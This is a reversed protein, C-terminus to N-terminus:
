LEDHASEETIDADKDTEDDDGEADSDVPDDKSEDKQKGWTAEALKMAYDPDDCILVNDFLTRSKVQWLDIGVYKLKPFVYIEPDDKFEPNDIMPTKWKRQYNPNKIKLQHMTWRKVFFFREFGEVFQLGTLLSDNICGPAGQFPCAICIWKSVYKSFVEEIVITGNMQGEKAEEMVIEGNIQDEKAQVLLQPVGCLLVHPNEM